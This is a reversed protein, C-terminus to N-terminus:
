KGSEIRAASSHPPGSLCALDKQSLNLEHCQAIMAGVNRSLAEAEDIDGSIEPNTKRVHNKYDAWTAM